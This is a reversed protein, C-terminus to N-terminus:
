AREDDVAGLPDDDALQVARGAGEEMRFVLREVDRLDDRVAAGPHLELVVRLVEEVDADIALPLEQRGDEEAGEAQAAGVLDDPAEVADIPQVQLAAREVPGHRVTEDAEARRLVDHDGALVEGNLGALLDRLVSDLRQLA